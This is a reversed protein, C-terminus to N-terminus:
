EKKGTDNVMKNRLMKNTSIPFIFTCYTHRRSFSDRLCTVFDFIEVMVLTYLDRKMEKGMKEGITPYNRNGESREHAFRHKIYVYRQRTYVTNLSYPSFIYHSRLFFILSFFGFWILHFLKALYTFIISVETAITTCIQSSKETTTIINTRPQHQFIWTKWLKLTFEFHTRAQSNLHRFNTIARLTHSQM